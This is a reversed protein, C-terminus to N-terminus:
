ATVECCCRGMLHDKWTTLGVNLGVTSFLEHLRAMSYDARMFVALAEQDESDLTDVWMGAKCHM